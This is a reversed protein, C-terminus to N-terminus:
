QKKISDFLADLNASNKKFSADEATSVALVPKKDTKIATLDWIVKKGTEKDVGTGNSSVTEMGNTTGKEGKQDVKVDKLIKDVEAASAKVAAEFDAADEASFIISVTGDESTVITAGAEKESTYGKPLTMQIGGDDIKVVEGGSTAPATATSNSTTSNSSSTANTNTSTAPKNAAPATNASKNAPATNGTKPAEGGCASLILALSAVSSLGLTKKM